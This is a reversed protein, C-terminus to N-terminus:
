KQVVTMKRMIKAGFYGGAVAGLGIVQGLNDWNVAGLNQKSVLYSLIFVGTVLIWFYKQQM